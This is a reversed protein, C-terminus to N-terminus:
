QKPAAPKPPRSPAFTGDPKMRRYLELGNIADLQSPCYDGIKRAFLEGSIRAEPANKAKLERLIELIRNLYARTRGIEPTVESTVPGRTPVLGQPHLADIQDLVALWGKPDTGLDSTMPCRGPTVLDGVYVVGSAPAWVWLDHDTHAPGPTAHIELTQTKTVLLLTEAVGLITPTKGKAGHVLGRVNEVARRNVVLTVDTPLMASFGNNSDPHLHTMVVWRVPKGPVTKRVEALLNRADEATAGTDILLVGEGMDFWACNTVGFRGVWSNADTRATEFPPITEAAQTPRSAINQKQALAATALLLAALAATLTTTLFRNM